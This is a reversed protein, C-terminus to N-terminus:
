QLVMSAIKVNESPIEKAFIKVYGDYSQAIPAFNTSLADKLSFIITPIM